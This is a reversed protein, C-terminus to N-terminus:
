GGYCREILRADTIADGELEDVLRGERMVIVRNCSGVLETFESSIFIVGKGQAALEDMLDYVENKGDVDIGHTPEDFILIDAGSELWKALIVKQQNGGSLTSVPNEVDAVKIGLRDVMAHATRRESSRRPVPLIGM